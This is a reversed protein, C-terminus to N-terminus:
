RPQYGAGRIAELIGERNPANSGVLRVTASGIEVGEVEVGPLAELAKRVSAICHGCGMGDIALELREAM